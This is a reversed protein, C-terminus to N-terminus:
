IFRDGYLPQITLDMFDRDEPTVSTMCYAYFIGGAPSGVSPHYGSPVSVLHGNRVLAVTTPDDMADEEYVFQAAFSDGMDFYVYTEERKAGHEHPPWATWGGDAGKCLGVLFRQSDFSEDILNWVDRRTGNEVAGYVKHRHDGDADAFAIHAFSTTRDCPAGFRIVVADQGHLTATSGPPLYLVDRLVATGTREGVTYDVSGEICLLVVEEPGTEVQVESHIELREASTYVMGMDAPEIRRLTERPTYHLQTSM